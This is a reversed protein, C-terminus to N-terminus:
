VGGGLSFTAVCVEEALHDTFDSLVAAKARKPSKRVAAEQREAWSKPLSAPRTASGAPLGCIPALTQSVGSNAPPRAMSSSVSSFPIKTLWLSAGPRYETLTVRAPNM